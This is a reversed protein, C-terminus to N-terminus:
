APLHEIAHEVLFDWMAAAPPLLHRDSRRMVQWWRMVPLGEIDLVSLRGDAVEAAITHASILAIGLGAIVAQKITENSSMEMGSPPQVRRQQFLEEFVQRTGSGRERILFRHGALEEIHLNRRKTLPNDPSAIVVHPHDGILATELQLGPPPRGMMVLDADGHGLREITEERNGIALQVDIDPHEAWFAALIQPAVYKATSVAGFVVHGGSGKAIADLARVCRALEADIRATTELLERGADTAKLGDSSREMLTLGISRQLLQLQQSVAPPTIHLRKAAAVVSGAELTTALSRLQKLTVDKM